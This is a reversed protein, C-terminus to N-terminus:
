FLIRFGFRFYRQDLLRGLPNTTTIQMFGGLSKVAGDPNLSMNSMNAGSPNSFTVNFEEVHWRRIDFLIRQPGATASSPASFPACFSIV